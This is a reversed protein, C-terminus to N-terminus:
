WIISFCSFSLLSYSNKSFSAAPFPMATVSEHCTWYRLSFINDSREVKSKLSCVKKLSKLLPERTWKEECAVVWNEPVKKIRSPQMQFNYIKGNVKILQLSIVKCYQLPKQWINVYVLWPNVHTRWGLGGEWRGGMGRPRRLVGAELVRRMCGAQAPSRNWGQYYVHKSATRGFCGM